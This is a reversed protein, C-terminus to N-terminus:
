LFLMVSLDELLISFVFGDMQLGSFDVFLLVHRHRAAAADEMLGQNPLRGWAPPFDGTRSSSPAEMWSGSRRWRRGADAGAEFDDVWIPRWALDPFPSASGTSGSIGSLSPAPAAGRVEVSSRRSLLFGGAGFCRRFWGEMAGGASSGVRGVSHVCAVCPDGARGGGSRGASPSPDAPDAAVRHIQPSAFFDGREVTAPSPYVVLARRVIYITLYFYATSGVFM